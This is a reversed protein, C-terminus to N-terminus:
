AFYGHSKKLFLSHSVSLHMKNTPLCIETNHCISNGKPSPSQRGKLECFWRYSWYLGRFFKRGSFFSLVFCKWFLVVWLTREWRRRFGRKGSSLMCSLPRGGGRLTWSSWSCPSTTQAWIAPRGRTWCTSACGCSPPWEVAGSSSKEVCRSCCLAPGLRSGKCPLNGLVRFVSKWAFKVTCRYAWRWISLQVLFVRCDGKPPLDRVWLYWSLGSFKAVGLGRGKKVSKTM